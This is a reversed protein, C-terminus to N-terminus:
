MPEDRPEDVIDIDEADQRLTDCKQNWVNGACILCGMTFHSTCENARDDRSIILRRM